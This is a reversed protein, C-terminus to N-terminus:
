KERLNYCEAGPFCPNSTCHDPKCDFGDGVKGPPCKGCTHYMGDPSEHCLVGPYCSQHSIGHSNDNCGGQKQKRFQFSFTLYSPLLANTLETHNISWM